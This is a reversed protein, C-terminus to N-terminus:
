KMRMATGMLCGRWMGFIGLFGLLILAVILWGVARGKEPGYQRTLLERISSTQGFGSRLAYLGVFFLTVLGIPIIFMLYDRM